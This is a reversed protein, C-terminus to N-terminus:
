NSFAYNIELAPNGSFKISPVMHYENAFNKLTPNSILIFTIKQQYTLFRDLSFCIRSTPPILIRTEEKSKRRTIYLVTGTITSKMM